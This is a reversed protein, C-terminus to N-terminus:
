GAFTPGVDVEAERSLSQSLACSVASFRVLLPNQTFATDLMVDWAVRLVVETNCSGANLGVQM